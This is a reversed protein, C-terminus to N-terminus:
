ALGQQKRLKDNTKTIISVPVFPYANKRGYVLSSDGTVFDVLDSNPSLSFPPLNRTNVPVVTEMLYLKYASGITTKFSAVLQAAAVSSGGNTGLVGADWAFIFQDLGTTADVTHIEALGFNVVTSFYLKIIQLYADWAAIVGLVSADKLTIDPEVGPTVGPDINVPCVMHHPFLVGNYTQRIYGPALSTDM